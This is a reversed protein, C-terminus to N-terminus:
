TFFDENRELKGNYYDLFMRHYGKFKLNYIYHHVLPNNTEIDAEALYVMYGSEPPLIVFEKNRARGLLSFFSQEQCYLNFSFMGDHLYKELGEKEESVSDYSFINTFLEKIMDSTLIDLVSLNLGMLATNSASMGKTSYPRYIDKQLLLSLKGVLSFDSFTYPHHLSFPTKHHLLNEIDDINQRTYLIDDDHFLVYDYNLVYRSYFALVVNYLIPQNKLGSISSENISYNNKLFTDLTDLSHLQFSHNTNNTKNFTDIYSDISHKTHPDISHTITINFHFNFKGKFKNLIVAILVLHDNNLNKWCRVVPIVNM